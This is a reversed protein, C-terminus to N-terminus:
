AGHDFLVLDFGASIDTDNANVEARVKIDSKPEIELPIQYEHQFLGSGAGITGLVYKVQFVGGFPRVYLFMDAGGTSVSRNMSAYFSYLYATTNAPISYIAMLTQNQGIEIHAKIKSKTAPVGATPTDDEYIYVSGANNTTGSNRVRFVRIWTGTIATKTQGAATVTATQLTWDADLGQVEYVQTDTANSSSIYLAAASSMFTYTYQQRGTAASGMTWIDAANATDIEPNRGFKLVESYNVVNGQAIDLGFKNM